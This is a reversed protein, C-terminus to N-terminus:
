GFINGFLDGSYDKKEGSEEKPSRHTQVMVAGPGTVSIFDGKRESAVTPDLAVLNSEYIELREGEELMFDFFDGQAEIFLVGPGGFRALTESSSEKTLSAEYALWSDEGVFVSDGEELRLIKIKGASEIGVEGSGGVMGQSIDIRETKYIIRGERVFVDEEFLKLKLCHPSGSVEYQM